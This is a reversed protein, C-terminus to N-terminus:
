FFEAVRCIPGSRRGIQETFSFWIGLGFPYAMFVVILILAPALLLYGLVGERELLPVRPKMPALDLDTMETASTSTNNM